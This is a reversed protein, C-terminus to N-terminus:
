HLHRFVTRVLLFNVPIAICYVPIPALGSPVGVRIFLNLLVIHLCYNVAHSLAFGIGRVASVGTRFTVKATLVFNCALSIIYGITYAVNVSVISKLLLYLGYHIVTAIVGVLAFRFFETKLLKLIMQELKRLM